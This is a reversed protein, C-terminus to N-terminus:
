VRWWFIVCMYAKLRQKLVEKKGEKREKKRETEEM